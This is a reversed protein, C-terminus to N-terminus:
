VNACSDRSSGSMSAWLLAIEKVASICSFFGIGHQRRQIVRFLHQQLNRLSPIADTNLFLLVLVFLKYNEEHRTFDGISKVGKEFKLAMDPAVINLTKNAKPMTLKKLPRDKIFQSTWTHWDDPSMIMSLQENGDRASEFRAITLASANAINSIWVHKQQSFRLEHFEPYTKMVRKFRENLVKKAASFFFDKSVPVGLSYMCFEKVRDEGICIEHCASDFHVLQQNLWVEEDQSYPLSTVAGSTPSPIIDEHHHDDDESGSEIRQRSEHKEAKKKLAKRFRSTIQDKTLVLEPKMGSGICLAYRCKQCSRKTKVTVECQDQNKCVFSPTKTHAHARRFFAKCSFCARCGYSM